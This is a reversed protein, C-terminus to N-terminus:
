NEVSSQEKNVPTKEKTKKKMTSVFIFHWNVYNLRIGTTDYGASTTMKQIGHRKLVIMASVLKMDKM